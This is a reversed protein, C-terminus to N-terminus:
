ICSLFTEGTKIASSIGCIVVYINLKDHNLNCMCSTRKNYFFVNLKFNTVNTFFHWSTM